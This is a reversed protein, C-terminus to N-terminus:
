LNGGSGAPSFSSWKKLGQWIRNRQSWMFRVACSVEMPKPELISSTFRCDPWPFLKKILRDFYRVVQMERNAQKQPTRKIQESCQEEVSSLM